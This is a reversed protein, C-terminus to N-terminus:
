DNFIKMKLHELGKDICMYSSCVLDGERDFEDKMFVFYAIKGTKESIVGISENKTFSVKGQYLDSAFAVFTNNKFTFKGSPAEIYM